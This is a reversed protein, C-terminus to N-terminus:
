ARAVCVVLTATSAGKLVCCAVQRGVTWRRACWGRLLRVQGRNLALGKRWFALCTPGGGALWGQQDVAQCSRVQVEEGIGATRGGHQALGRLVM